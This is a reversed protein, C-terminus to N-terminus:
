IKFKGHFPLYLDAFLTGHELGETPSYLNGYSQAPTFVMALPFDKYSGASVCGFQSLTLAESANGSDRASGAAPLSTGRATNPNQHPLSVNCMANRQGRYQKMMTIM